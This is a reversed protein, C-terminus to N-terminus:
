ASRAVAFCRKLWGRKYTSWANCTILYLVREAMLLNCLENSDICQMAGLTQRGFVGDDAVKVARQLLKTAVQVGHHVACDFVLHGVREPMKDCVAPSWYERQYIEKAKELSLMKIDVDPHARKSIGFKTEGGPDAPDNVYGGEVGVTLAFAKDFSM